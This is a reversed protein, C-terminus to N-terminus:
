RILNDDIGVTMDGTTATITNGSATIPINVPAQITGATLDITDVNNLTVVDANADVTFDNSATLKFKVNDKATFDATECAEPLTAIVGDALTISTPATDGENLTLTYGSDSKTM